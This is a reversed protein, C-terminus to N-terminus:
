EYRYLQTKNLLWLVKDVLASSSTLLLKETLFYKEIGMEAKFICQYPSNLCKLSGFNTTCEKHLDYRSFFWEQDTPFANPMKEAGKPESCQYRHM